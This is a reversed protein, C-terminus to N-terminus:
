ADPAEVIGRMAQIAAWIAEDSEDYFRLSPCFRRAEAVDALRLIAELNVDDDAMRALDCRIESQECM